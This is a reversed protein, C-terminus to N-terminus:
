PNTNIELARTFTHNSLEISDPEENMSSHNLWWQDLMGNEVILRFWPTFQAPNQAFLDNLQSHTVWEVQVVENFNVSICPNTLTLCFVYDVLSTLFHMMLVNTKPGFPVPPRLTNLKIFWNSIKQRMSSIMMSDFRVTSPDLGLEHQLKRMAAIKTGQIPHDMESPMYLPHSCCANTKLLPFTIKFSSRQQLLLESKENFLFVSFARHLLGDGHHADYKSVPGLINDGDDIHICQENM